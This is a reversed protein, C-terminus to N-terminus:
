TATTVVDDTDNSPVSDLPVDITAEYTVSDGTSFGIVAPSYTCRTRLYDGPALVKSFGNCGVTTGNVTTTLYPSNV